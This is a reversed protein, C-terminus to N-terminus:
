AESTVLTELAEIAARTEAETPPAEGYLEQELALVAVKMQTTPGGVRGLYQRATEAAARPPPGHRDETVR